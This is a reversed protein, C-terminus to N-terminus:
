VIKKTILEFKINKNNHLKLKNVKKKGIIPSILLNNKKHKKLLEKFNNNHQYYQLLTHFINKIYTELIFKKLNQFFIQFNKQLNVSVKKLKLNKLFNKIRRKINIIELISLAQKIKPLKSHLEKKKHKKKPINMNQLVNGGKKKLIVLRIMKTEIDEEDDNLMSDDDKIKYESYSRINLEKEIENQSKIIKKEQKDISNRLKNKYRMKEVVSRRRM